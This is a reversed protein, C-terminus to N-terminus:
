GPPDGPQVVEQRGAVGRHEGLEPQGGPELGLLEAVGVLELLERLEVPADRLRVGAGRRGADLRMRLLLEVLALDPACADVCGLIEETGDAVVLVVTMPPERAAPMENM